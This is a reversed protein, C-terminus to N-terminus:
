QIQAFIRKPIRKGNILLEAIKGVTREGMKVDSYGVTTAGM